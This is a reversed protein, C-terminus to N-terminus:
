VEAEFPKLTLEGAGNKELKQIKKEAEELKSQCVKVLRTGEEYRTLLTELPLEGAEMSEVIAELRKLGEEFALAGLENAGAGKTENPV